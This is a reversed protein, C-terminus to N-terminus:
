AAKREDTTIAQNLEVLRQNLKRSEEAAAARVAADSSLQMQQCQQVLQEVVIIEPTKMYFDNAISM